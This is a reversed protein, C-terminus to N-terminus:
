PKYYVQAYSNEGRVNQWRGTGIIITNELIFSVELDIENIVTSYNIPLEDYSLSQIQNYLYHYHEIRENQLFAEYRLQLNIPIILLCILMIM